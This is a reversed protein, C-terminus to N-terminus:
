YDFNQVYKNKIRIFNEKFIFLKIQRYNTFDIKRFNLNNFSFNKNVKTFTLIFFVYFFKKFSVIM